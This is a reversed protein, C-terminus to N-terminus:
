DWNISAHSVTGAEAISKNAAAIAETENPLPEDEPVFRILVQFITDLDSEDIVDILKKLAEKSM